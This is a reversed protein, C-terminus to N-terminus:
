LPTFLLRIQDFYVVPAALPSCAVPAPILRPRRLWCCGCRWWCCQREQLPSVVAICAAAAAVVVVAALELVVAAAVVLEPVQEDLAM